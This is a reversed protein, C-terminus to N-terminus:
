IMLINRHATACNGGCSVIVAKVRFGAEGLSRIIGLTNQHDSGAIVAIPESNISM